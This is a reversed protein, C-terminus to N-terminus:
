SSIGEVATLTLTLTESRTSVLHLRFAVNRLFTTGEDPTLAHMFTFFPLNRVLIHCLPKSPSYLYLEVREKAEASSQSLYNVGRGPRKVRPFSVGMTYSDPNAGPGTQVAAFFKMGVPIRDGSRGARLSDSYRSLEELGQMTFIFNDTYM